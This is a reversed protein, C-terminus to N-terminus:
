DFASSLVLRRYKRDHRFKRRSILHFNEKRAPVKGQSAKCIIGDMLIDGLLIMDNRNSRNESSAGRPRNRVPEIVLTQPLYDTRRLAQCLYLVRIRIQQRHRSGILHAFGGIASHLRGSVKCVGSRNSRLNSRLTNAFDDSHRVAVLKGSGATYELPSDNSPIKLERPNLVQCVCVEASTEM